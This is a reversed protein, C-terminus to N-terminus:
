EEMFYTACMDAIHLSVALKNKKFMNGILQAGRADSFGMHANIAQMEYPRLEMFRRVIMASKEGHGYPFDEDYIYTEVQMWQNNEDKAWKFSKKYCGIKCLDHFLSVITISEDPYSTINNIALQSCLANFVNISHEVLGGERCLHYKTSCPATYFDTEKLYELLEDIGKRKIFLNALREFNQVRDNYDM